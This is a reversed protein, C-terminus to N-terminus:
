KIILFYLQFETTLNKLTISLKNSAYYFVLVTQVIHFFIMIHTERDMVHENRFKLWDYKVDSWWQGIINSTENQNLDIVLRYM